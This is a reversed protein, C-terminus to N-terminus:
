KMSRLIRIQEEPTQQHYTPELEEEFLKKFTNKVLSIGKPRKRGIVDIIKNGLADFLVINKKYDEESKSNNAKVFVYLERYTCNWFESPKM